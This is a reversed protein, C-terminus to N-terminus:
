LYKGHLIPFATKLLLKVVSSLYPNQCQFNTTNTVGFKFFM